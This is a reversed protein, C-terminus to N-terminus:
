AAHYEKLLSWGRLGRAFASPKFTFHKGTSPRGPTIRNVVVRPKGMVRTIEIVQVADLVTPDNAQWVQGPAVIRGHKTSLGSRAAAITEPFMAKFVARMFNESHNTVRIMDYSRQMLSDDRM